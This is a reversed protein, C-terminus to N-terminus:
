IDDYLPRWDEEGPQVVFDCCFLFGIHAVPIFSVRFLMVMHEVKFGCLLVKFNLFSLSPVM